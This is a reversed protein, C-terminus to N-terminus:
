PGFFGRRPKRIKLEFLLVYIPWIYYHLIYNNVKKSVFSSSKSGWEFNRGLLPSPLLEPRAKRQQYHDFLLFSALSWRLFFSFAILGKEKKGEELKNAKRSKYYWRRLPSSNWELRETKRSKYPRSARKRPFFYLLEIWFRTFFGFLVLKWQFSIKKKKESVRRKRIIRGVARLRNQTADALTTQIQAAPFQRETEPEALSNTRAM